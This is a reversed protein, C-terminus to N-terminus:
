PSVPVKVSFEFHKPHENWPTLDEQRPDAMIVQALLLVAENYSDCANWRTSYLMRTTERGFNDTSPLVAGVSYVSGGDNPRSLQKVSYRVGNRSVKLEQEFPMGFEIETGPCHEQLWHLSSFLAEAGSNKLTQKESDTLEDYNHSDETM